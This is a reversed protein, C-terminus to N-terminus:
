EYCVNSDLCERRLQEMFVPSKDAKKVIPDGAEVISQPM